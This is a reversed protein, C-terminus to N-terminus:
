SNLFCQYIHKKLQKKNATCFCCYSCTPLISFGHALITHMNLAERSTMKVECRDCILKRDCTRSSFSKNSALRKICSTHVVTEPTEDEITSVKGSEVIDPSQIKESYRRQPSKISLSPMENGSANSDAVETDNIKKGKDPAKSVVKCIPSKLLEPKKVTIKNTKERACKNTKIVKNKPPSKTYDDPSKSRSYMLLRIDKVSLLGKPNQGANSRSSKRVPTESAGSLKGSSESSSKSETKSQNSGKSSLKLDLKELLEIKNHSVNRQEPKNESKLLRSESNSNDPPSTEPAGNKFCGSERINQNKSLKLASTFNQSLKGKLRAVDICKSTKIESSESVNCDNVADSNDIGSQNEDSYECEQKLISDTAELSVREGLERVDEEVIRPKNLKSKSRSRKNGKNTISRTKVQKSKKLPTSFDVRDFSLDSDDPDDVHESDEELEDEIPDSVKGGLKESLSDKLQNFHSSKPRQNIHVNLYHLAMVRKRDSVFSCDPCNIPKRLDDPNDEDDSVYINSQRRKRLRKGSPPTRQQSTSREMGHVIKTRVKSWDISETSSDLATEEIIDKEGDNIDESIVIECPVVYEASGMCEQRHTMFLTRSSTRFECMGCSLLTRSIRHSLKDKLNKIFGPGDKMLKEEELLKPDDPVQVNTSLMGSVESNYHDLLMHLILFGKQKDTFGCKNCTMYKRELTTAMEENAQPIFNQKSSCLLNFTDELNHKNIHWDLVTKDLFIINCTTCLYSPLERESESTNAFDEEGAVTDAILRDLEINTIPNVGVYTLTRAKGNSIVEWTTESNSKDYSIWKKEYATNKDDQPEHNLNRGHKMVEHKTLCM